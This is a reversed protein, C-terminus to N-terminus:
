PRASKGRDWSILRPELFAEEIVVEAEREVSAWVRKDRMPVRFPLVNTDDESTKMISEGTRIHPPVTYVAAVQAM